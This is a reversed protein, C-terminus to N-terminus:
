VGQVTFDTKIKDLGLREAAHLTLFSTESASDFVCRLKLRGQHGNVYIVATPLLRKELGWAVSRKTSALAIARSNPEFTLEESSPQRVKESGLTSVIKEKPLSTETECLLVNHM